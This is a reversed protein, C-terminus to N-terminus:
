AAFTRRRSSAGPSARDRARDRIGAEPIKPAAGAYPASYKPAVLADRLPIPFGGRPDYVESLGKVVFTM